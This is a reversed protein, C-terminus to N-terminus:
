APYRLPARIRLPFLPFPTLPYFTDLAPLACTRANQTGTRSKVEDGRRSIDYRKEFEPLDASFFFTDTGFTGSV